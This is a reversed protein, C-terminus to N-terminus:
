CPSECQKIISNWHQDLTARFDAPQTLLIERKVMIVIDRAPLRHRNKRFSERLLRKLANRKVGTPKAAADRSGVGV